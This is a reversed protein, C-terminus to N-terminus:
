AYRSKSRNCFFLGGAIWAVIVGGMGLYYAWGADLGIDNKVFPIVTVDKHMYYGWLGISVAQLLGAFITIGGTFAALRDSKCCCLSGCGTPIALLLFLVGFGTLGQCAYTWDPLNKEFLFDNQSFWVCGDFSAKFEKFNLDKPCAGWLGLSPTNVGVLWYPSIFHLVGAVAAIILLVVAIARTCGGSCM